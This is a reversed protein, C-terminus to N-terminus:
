KTLFDLVLHHNKIINDDTIVANEGKVFVNDWPGNNVHTADVIKWSDIDNTLSFVSDIINQVQNLHPIKFIKNIEDINNEEEIVAKDSYKYERFVDEFVPGYDFAVPKSNILNINNILCQAHILYMIKQLKLHQMPQISLLYKALEVSSLSPNYFEHLENFFQAPDEFFTVGEFFSDKEKISLTSSNVTKLRHIAYNNGIIKKIEGLIPTISSPTIIAESSLKFAIRRTSDIDNILIITHNM